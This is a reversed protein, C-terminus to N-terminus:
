SQCFRRSREEWSHMPTTDIPLVHIQPDRAKQDPRQEGQTDGYGGGGEVNRFGIAIEAGGELEGAAELGSDPEVVQGAGIAQGIIRDEGDELVVM